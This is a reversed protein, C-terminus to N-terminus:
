FGAALVRAEQGSLGPWVRQLDIPDIASLTGKQRRLRRIGSEFDPREALRAVARYAREYRPADIYDPSVPMDIAALYDLSTLTALGEELVSAQAGPGAPSLLHVVEHSLQFLARTEDTAASRSLQIIITEGVGDFTPYWVQPTSRSTFEVGLLTWNRDRTGYRAEAFRLIHGMRSALTWTFACSADPNCPKALTLSPSSHILGADARVGQPALALLAVLACTTFRYMKM